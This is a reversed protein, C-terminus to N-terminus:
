DPLLWAIKKLSLSPFLVFTGIWVPFITLRFVSFDISASALRVISSNISSLFFYFFGFAPSTVLKKLIISFSFATRESAMSPFFRCAYTAAHRMLDHPRLHIGVLKGAKNVVRRAATYSIAFIRQDSGIGKRTIPLGEGLNWAPRLGLPNSSSRRRRYVIAM